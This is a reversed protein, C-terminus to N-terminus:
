RMLHYVSKANDTQHFTDWTENLLYDHNQNPPWTIRLHTSDRTEWLAAGEQGPRTLSHDPHFQLEGGPGIWRTHELYARLEGADQPGYFSQPHVLANEGHQQERRVGDKMYIITLSKNWYPNPDIGLDPPCVTFARQKVEIHAKVAATVDATKGGTGYIASLIQVPWHKPTAIQSPFHYRGSGIELTAGLTDFLEGPSKPNVLPKAVVAPPTKLASPKVPVKPAVYKIWTSAAGGWLAKGPFGPGAHERMQSDGQDWLKTIPRARKSTGYDRQHIFEAARAPEDCASWEASAPDSVFGFDNPGLIGAVAFYRAGDWRLRNHVIHFVLWDGPRIAIDIREVTAGYIEDLLKRKSDPIKVGNLYAEVIFDDAATILSNAHPTTAALRAQRAAADETHSLLEPPIPSLEAQGPPKWRIRIGADSGRSEVVGYSLIKALGKKLTITAVRDAGDGFGCVIEDNIMLLNRDYFGNGNFAYEGDVPVNLFGQALANREGNWRWPDLSEVIYTEGIPQGLKEPPVYFQDHNDNQLAHRPYETVLLGPALAATASGAARGTVAGTAPTSAAALRRQEEVAAESGTIQALRARLQHRGGAAAGP